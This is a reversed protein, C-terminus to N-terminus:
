ADKPWYTNENWEMYLSQPELCNWIEEGIRLEFLENGAFKFNEPKPAPGDNQWILVQGQSPSYAYARIAGYGKIISMALRWDFVVGAKLMANWEEISSIM